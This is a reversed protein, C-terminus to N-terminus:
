VVLLKVYVVFSAFGSNILKLTVYADHRIKYNHVARRFSNMHIIYM